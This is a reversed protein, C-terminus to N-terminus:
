DQSGRDIIESPHSRRHCLSYRPPEYHNESDFPELFKNAILDDRIFFANAGVFDCGVLSYGLRRGLNEFAKLSAGFNQSGNWIRNPCYHAKWDISPPIASNYEVVVVRPRFVHLGEWIYYTNQDIDLSLLDFENPVGLHEFLVSINEKKAFAIKYKLCENQLDGRNKLSTLFRDEGDIWFGTWGQSLLFASNNEHGTGVGVEAFIKNTTGIRRFIEHIIGDEGNQSCVQFQSSLLRRPDGYRPHNRIKFDFLEVAQHATIRNQFIKLRSQIENLERIVPLSRYFNLIMTKIM